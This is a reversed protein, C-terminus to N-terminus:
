KPRAAAPAQVLTLSQVEAENVLIRLNNGNADVPALFFFPQNPPYRTAMAVIREGDHFKVEVLRAGRLRPDTGAIANADPRLKNGDLNKVFFLAKLEALAVQVMTGEPTRVHCLPRKPDVDLSTGKVTRGDAFRAVVLNVM